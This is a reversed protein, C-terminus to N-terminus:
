RNFVDNVYVMGTRQPFRTSFGKIYGCYTVSDVKFVPLKYPETDAPIVSEDPQRTYKVLKAPTEGILCTSDNIPKTYIDLNKTGNKLRVKGVENKEDYQQYKWVQSKYIAVSDFLSIEWQANDARFWNGSLKEPVISKFLEPKLQIDYIFWSGGDNAEGYDIKTISADIKPFILKYDVQGSAPITYQENVPIGEATVIFLKEKTGVPQIFTEKPISIWNGPTYNVHFWLLTETDNLEIKELKVNPATSMGVKPNELISQSYGLVSLFLTFTILLITRM